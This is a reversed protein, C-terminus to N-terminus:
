YNMHDLAYTCFDEYERHPLIPLLAKLLEASTKYPQGNILVVPKNRVFTIRLREKEGEFFGYTLRCDYYKDGEVRTFDFKEFAPKLTLWYIRCAENMTVKYEYTKEVLNKEPIAMMSDVWNM